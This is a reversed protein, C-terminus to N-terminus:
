TSSTVTLNATNGRLTLEGDTVALSLDNARITWHVKGPYSAISPWTAAWTLYDAHTSGVTSQTMSITTSDRFGRLPWGSSPYSVILSVSTPSALDGSSDYFSHRFPINQGRNFIKAM